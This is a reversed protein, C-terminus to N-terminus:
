SDPREIRLGLARVFDLLPAGGQLYAVQGSEDHKLSARIVDDGERWASLTVSAQKTTLREGADLPWVEIALSGAPTSEVLLM